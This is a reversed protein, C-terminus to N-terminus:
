LFFPLFIFIFFYSLALFSRFSRYLSLSLSAIHQNNDLANVKLLAAQSLSIMDRKRLVTTTTARRYAAYINRITLKRSM